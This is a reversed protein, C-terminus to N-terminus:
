EYVDELKKIFTQDLPHLTTKETSPSNAKEPLILKFSQQIELLATRQQAETLSESLISRINSLSRLYKAPEEQALRALEQGAAKLENTLRPSVVLKDKTLEANITQFAKRIAAYDIGARANAFASTNHVESLDGSLRKEEKIPPPDFGTRHVYIRSDQSIEKLLKLAKYQYPLSKEPEYLRLYLEADWMITLAAKLKARISQTFFTAEDERDHEHVFGSPIGNSDNSEEEQSHDHGAEGKGPKKEEVLNHENDKDHVHGYKKTVDEEAEHDVEPNQLGIGSEFEEGLFEGYRLRLVKQDYALENSKSKFEFATIRKKEKLLKESDIIIQRQSRFYDPMLDVGLGDDFVSEVKATDRLAVFYTETRSRNPQPSKNDFAEIYFYLEDGPEMGLKRLDLSRVVDIKKGSVKPSNEFYLKEERFKVSEGSGKSVTAIISTETLGFDDMLNANLNFALKDTIALETFQNQNKLAIVPPADRTVELKQFDTGKWGAEDKWVIQYFGGESIVRKMEFQSGTASLKISDRTSLVLMPDVIGKTFTISWSVVSGEVVTLPLTRLQQRSLGTYLPPQIDITIDKIEAPIPKLLDASTKPVETPTVRSYKPVFASFVFVIAVSFIFVIGAYLRHNPLQIASYLNSFNREVKSKQLLQLLTLEEDTRLLLDCSNQLAPYRQNLYLTLHRPTISFVRHKECHYLFTLISGTLSLLASLATPVGPWHAGVFSLLGVAISLLVAEGIRNLRYIKRLRNLQYRADSTM